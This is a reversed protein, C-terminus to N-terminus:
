SDGESQQLSPAFLPGSQGAALSMGGSTKWSYCVTIHLIVENYSQSSFLFEAAGEALSHLEYYVIIVNM